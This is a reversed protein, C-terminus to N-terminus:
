GWHEGTREDVAKVEDEDDDEEHREERAHITYGEVVQLRHAKARIQKSKTPAEMLKVSGDPDTRMNGRRTNMVSALLRMIRLIRDISISNKQANDYVERM